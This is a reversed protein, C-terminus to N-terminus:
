YFVLCSRPFNKECIVTCSQLRQSFPIFSILGTLQGLNRELNIDESPFGLCLSATKSLRLCRSVRLSASTAPILHLISLHPLWESFSNWSTLMPTRKLRSFYRTVCAYLSIAHFQASHGVTKVGFMRWLESLLPFHEMGSVGYHCIRVSYM